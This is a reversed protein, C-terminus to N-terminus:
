VQILLILKQLLDLGPESFVAVLICFLIFVIVLEYTKVKPYKRKVFLLVFFGAILVVLHLYPFLNLFFEM